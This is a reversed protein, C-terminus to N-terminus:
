RQEQIFRVGLIIAFISFGITQFWDSEFAFWGACGGLLFIALLLLITMIRYTIMNFDTNRIKGGGPPSMDTVKKNSSSYGRRM